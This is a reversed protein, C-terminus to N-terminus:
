PISLKEPADQDADPYTRGNNRRPVLLALFTGALFAALVNIGMDRWDFFRSPIYIQVSEEVMGIGAALLAAEGLARRERYRLVLPRYFLYTLLSMQLFHVREEPAQVLRWMSVGYILVGVALVGLRKRSFTRHTRVWVHMFACVLGVSLVVIFGRLLGRERLFNSISRVFPTSGVLYVSFLVAPWWSNM